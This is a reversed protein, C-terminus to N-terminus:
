QFALEVEKTLNHHSGLVQKSTSLLKILLERAEDDRNADQLSLAYTKGASITYENGHVGYARAKMRSYREPLTSVERKMRDILSLLVDATVGAERKQVPQLSDLMNNLANLKVYLAEVQRQTNRPYQRRVFSVFATAIDIRLMNQYSQQCSPCERWPKIFDNMDRGDWATSKAIAYNTLCSLHVFGADTGRCACDRRLPQGAEDAGGDLCLYCVAEVDDGDPALSSSEDVTNTM